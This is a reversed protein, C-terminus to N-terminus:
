LTAYSAFGRKICAKYVTRAKVVATPESPKSPQELLATPM